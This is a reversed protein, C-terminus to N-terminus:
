QTSLHKNLNCPTRPVESCNGVDRVHMLNLLRRLQLCICAQIFRNNVAHEAFGIYQEKTYHQVQYRLQAQRPVGGTLTSKIGGLESAGIAKATQIVTFRVAELDIGHGTSSKSPTGDCLEWAVM